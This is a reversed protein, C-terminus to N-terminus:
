YNITTKVGSKNSRIEPLDIRTQLQIQHFILITYNWKKKITEGRNLFVLMWGLEMISDRMLSFTIVFGELIVLSWLELTFIRYALWMFMWLRFHSAPIWCSSVMSITEACKRNVM